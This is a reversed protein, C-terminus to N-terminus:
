GKILPAMTNHRAQIRTQRLQKIQLAVSELVFSLFLSLSAVRVVRM